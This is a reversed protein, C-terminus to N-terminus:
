IKEREIFIGKDVKSFFDQYYKEDDVQEIKVVRGANDLIKAQFNIRVRTKDGFESVNATAELILNKRWTANAGLFLLALFKEGFGEIDVEKEASILGLDVVANKVIFGEDQLVNLLAKMVMKTDKTDYTRTQFERIQLQTKEPTLSTTACSLVFISILLSLVLGINM